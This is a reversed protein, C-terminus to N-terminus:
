NQLSPGQLLVSIEEPYCQWWPWLCDYHSYIKTWGKPILGSWYEQRSVGLSLPSGPPSCDNPDCLTPCSQAVKVWKSNWSSSGIAPIGPIQSRIGSSRLHLQHLLSHFYIVDQFWGGEGPRHFFQRGHFWDKTGLLKPVTLRHNDAQHNGKRMDTKHTELKLICYQLLLGM